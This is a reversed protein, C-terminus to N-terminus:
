KYIYEYTGIVVYNEFDPVTGFNVDEKPAMIRLEVVLRVGKDTDDPVDNLVGCNFVKIQNKVAAYTLKFNAGAIQPLLQQNLYSPEYEPIKYFTATFEEWNEGYGDYQGAITLTVSEGNQMNDPLIVSVFYDVFWDDYNVNTFQNATFTYMESVTKQMVSDDQLHVPVQLPRTVEEGNETVVETPSEVKEFPALPVSLDTCHWDLTFTDDDNLKIYEEPYVVEGDANVLLVVKKSKYWVIRHGRTKAAFNDDTGYGYELLLARVAAHNNADYDDLYTAVCVNMNRVNQKDVSLNAQNILNSFTPILVTALIAIVAIVIVLEVTTFGKRNNKMNM